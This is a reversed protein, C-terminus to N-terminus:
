LCWAFYELVQGRNQPLGQLHIQCSEIIFYITKPRGGQIGPLSTALKSVSATEISVDFDVQQARSGM